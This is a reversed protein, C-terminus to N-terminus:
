IEKLDFEGSFVTKAPGTLSVKDFKDGLRQFDVILVDGGWTKLKIPPKMNKYANAIIATAVSGTGCALTENEVGREYTRISIVDNKIQIFNVNTGNPSFDKNYRIEKGIEFVPFNEINRYRSNLDKPQALVDEIEIVVHPSGTDAYHSKILQSSAKIRFNLKVKNPSKLDFRVLGSNFVEGTFIENNAQFHAKGNKLRNSDGAYKIACRAGNGCLSGSSGDANFYEMLFDSDKSNSIFIIGDAGIGKRRNCLSSIQNQKLSIGKNKNKDIVVFDNGAGNMKTFLIKKV